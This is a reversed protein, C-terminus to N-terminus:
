SCYRRSGALTSRLPASVEVGQAGGRGALSRVARHARRDGLAGRVRRRAPGARAQPRSARWAATERRIWIHVLRPCRTAFSSGRASIGRGRGRTSSRSYKPSAGASRSLSNKVPLRVAATGCRMFSRSM